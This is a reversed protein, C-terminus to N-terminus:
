IGWVRDRNGTSKRTKGSRHLSVSLLTQLGTDQEGDNEIITRCRMHAVKTNNLVWGEVLTFGRKRDGLRIDRSPPQPSAGIRLRAHGLFMDSFM